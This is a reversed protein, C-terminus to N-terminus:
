SLLRGLPAVSTYSRLRPVNEKELVQSFKFCVEPNDKATDFIHGTAMAKLHENGPTRTEMVPAHEKTPECEGTSMNKYTGSPCLVLTEYVPSSPENQRPQQVYVGLLFASGITLIILAASFWKNRVLKLLNFGM